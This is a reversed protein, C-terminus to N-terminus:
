FASVDSQQCLWLQSKELLWTSIHSNSWLSQFGIFRHKQIATSFSVSSLRKSLLSIVGTLGLPFWSQINMPLVLAPAGFSQGGSAFLEEFWLQSMGRISPFTSPLLLLPRCLILHKSLMMLMISMFTVLGWSVASSLLAQCAATWSTALLWVHSLLQVVVFSRYTVWFPM